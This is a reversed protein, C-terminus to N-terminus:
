RDNYGGKPIEVVQDVYVGPTIIHEPDLMGPEVIQDVEAITITAARALIPGASRGVGRYILNGFKDAKHARILAFDLKLPLGTFTM